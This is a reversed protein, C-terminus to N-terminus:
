SRQKSLVSRPVHKTPRVHAHAFVTGCPCLYRIQWSSLLPLLILKLQKSGGGVLFYSVSSQDVNWETCTKQFQLSFIACATQQSFFVCSKHKRM